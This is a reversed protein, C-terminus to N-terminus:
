GFPRVLNAWALLYLFGLTAGAWGQILGSQWPSLAPNRKAENVGLASLVVAILPPWFHDFTFISVLGIILGLTAFLNHYRSKPKEGSPNNDFFTMRGGFKTKVIEYDHPRSKAKHPSSLNPGALM